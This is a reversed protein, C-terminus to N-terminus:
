DEWLPKLAKIRKNIEKLAKKGIIPAPHPRHLEIKDKGKQFVVRSGSTLGKNKLEYGYFSLVRVLEDFTFDSPITKFREILKDKTSM